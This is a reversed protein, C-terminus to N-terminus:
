IFVILPIKLKLSFCKSVTTWDSRGRVDYAEFIIRIRATLNKEALVAPVFLTVDSWLVSGFSEMM